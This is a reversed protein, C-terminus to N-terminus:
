DNETPDEPEGLNNIVEDVDFQTDVDHKGKMEDLANQAAQAAATFNNNKWFTWCFVVVGALVLVVNQVVDDTVGFNIGFTNLINLVGVVVFTIGRVLLGRDM